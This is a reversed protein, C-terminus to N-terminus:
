LAKRRGWGFEEGGAQLLASVGETWGGPPETMIFNNDVHKKVAARYPVSACASVLRGAAVGKAPTSLFNGISSSRGTPWTSGFTLRDRYSPGRREMSSVAELTVTAAGCSIAAFIRFTYKYPFFLWVEWRKM